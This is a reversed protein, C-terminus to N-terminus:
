DAAQGSWELEARMGQDAGLHPHVRHVYQPRGVPRAVDIPTETWTRVVWGDPDTVVTARWQYESRVGESKLLSRVFAVADGDTPTVM